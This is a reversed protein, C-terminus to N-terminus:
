NNSYNPTWVKADLNFKDTGLMGLWNYILVPADVSRITSLELNQPATPCLSGSRESFANWSVEGTINFNRKSKSKDVLVNGAGEIAPWYGILDNWYINDDYVATQCYNSAIYEDPLAKNYIRVDTITHSAGSGYTAGSGLKLSQSSSGQVGNISGEAKLVGNRFVKAKRTGQDDYIKATLTYWENLHFVENDVIQTGKVKLRWGIGGNHIFSWGDDSNGTNGMKSFFTPNLSGLNHFKIKMQITFEKDVTNGLNYIDAKDADIVASTATGTYRIGAGDYTPDSLDVREIFKYQFQSNYFLVFNNRFPISYLSHDDQIPDLEYAGGRNSAVVILWREANYNARSEITNVIEKLQKDVTNLATLYATSKPGYGATKGAKDAGSLTILTFNSDERKLETKAEQIIEEDSALVKKNDITSNQSLKNVAASSTLVATRTGLDKKLRDFILPYTDLAAGSIDDSIVKHKDKKVGTLLDAYFTIDQTSASAISNWSFLGKSTMSSLFPMRNYDTAETAVVSGVAGEIVIYAVKYSKESYDDKIDDPSAFHAKHEIEKNCSTFMSLMFMTYILTYWQSRGTKHKLINMM